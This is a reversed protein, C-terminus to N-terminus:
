SYDNQSKWLYGGSVYPVDDKMMETIDDSLLKKIERVLSLIVDKYSNDLHYLVCETNSKKKATDLLLDLKTVLVNESKKQKAVPLLIHNIYTLLCSIYINDREVGDKYIANNYVYDKITRDVDSLYVRVDAMSLGCGARGVATKIDFADTYEVTDEIEEISLQEFKPANGHYYEDQQYKVKYPYATAKIYNLISKPPEKKKSIMRLFTREASTLAFKDVDDEHEFWRYKLAFMTYLHYLYKYATEEEIIGGDRVCTDLWKCMDVYSVNSPKKYTIM